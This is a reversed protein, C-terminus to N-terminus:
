GDPQKYSKSFEMVVLKTKVSIDYVKMNSLTDGSNWLMEYFKMSGWVIEYIKMPNWLINISNWPNYHFKMYTSQIEYFNM